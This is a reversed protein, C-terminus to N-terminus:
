IKSTKKMDKTIRESKLSNQFGKKLEDKSKMRKTIKLKKEESKLPSNGAIANTIKEKTDKIYFDKDSRIYKEAKKIYKLAEKMKKKDKRESSKYLLLALSNGVTRYMKMQFQGLEGEEWIGRKTSKDLYSLIKKSLKIYEKENKEDMKLATLIGHHAYLYDYQDINKETKLRKSKLLVKIFIPTAEKVNGKLFLTKAERMQKYIPYASEPTIYANKYVGRPLTLASALLQMAVLLALVKSM